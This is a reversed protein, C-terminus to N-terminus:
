LLNPPWKANDNYLKRELGLWEWLYHKSVREFSLHIIDHLFSCCLLFIWVLALLTFLRIFLGLAGFISVWIFRPVLKWDHYWLCVGFPWIPIYWQSTHQDYQSIDNRGAWLAFEWSTGALGTGLGWLLGLFGLILWRLRLGRCRPSDLPCHIQSLWRFYWLHSFCAQRM